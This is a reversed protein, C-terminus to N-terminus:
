YNVLGSMEDVLLSVEIPVADISSSDFLITRRRGNRSLTLSSVEESGAIQGYKNEFQRLWVVAALHFLIKRQRPEIRFRSTSQRQEFLQIRGRRQARVVLEDPDGISIEIYDRKAM